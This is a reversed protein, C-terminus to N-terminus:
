GKLGSTIVGQVFFRQGAIFVAIVPVVASVGAAMILSYRTDFEDIFLTMGVPITFLEKTNLFILPDQYDNWRWIFSVIVLSVLAPKALPMIIRSWITFHGAGDMLASESLENPITTFFQRLLFVGFVVYIGPLILAWHTDLIGMSRFMLFRPVLLVQPPIMITALYLLFIQDRGRYRLKAFSYAATSSTLVMGTVSIVTVKVSNLYFRGFPYLGAWVEKYNEWRITEPIWKIPYAFVESEIKLSASLMSVLQLLMAFGVIGAAITLVIKPTSLRGSRKLPLGSARLSKGSLLQGM